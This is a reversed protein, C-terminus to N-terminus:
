CLIRGPDLYATIRLRLWVMKNFPPFEEKLYTNLLQVHEIYLRVKMDMPKHLQCHMYSKQKNLAKTPFIMIILANVAATCGQSKLDETTNDAAFKAEAVPWLDECVIHSLTVIKGDALSTHQNNIVM